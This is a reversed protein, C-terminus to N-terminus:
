FIDYAENLNHKLLIIYYIKVLFQKLCSLNFLFFDLNFSKLVDLRAVTKKKKKYVLM